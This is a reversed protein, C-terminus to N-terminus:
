REVKAGDNFFCDLLRVAAQFHITNLFVTLFWSLAIMDVLGLEVLCEYLEPLESAVLDSFVGQDVLAGVVKVNYYDPLLRECIAM